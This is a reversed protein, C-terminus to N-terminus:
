RLKLFRGYDYVVHFSSQSHYLLSEYAFDVGFMGFVAIVLVWDPAIATLRALQLLLKTMETYVLRIFMLAGWAFFRVFGVYFALIAAFNYAKVATKIVLENSYKFVVGLSYCGYVGLFEM